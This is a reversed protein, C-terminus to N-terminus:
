IQTKNIQNLIQFWFIHSLSGGFLWVFFNTHRTNRSVTNSTGTNTKLDIKQHDTNSHERVWLYYNTGNQNKFKLVHRRQKSCVGSSNKHQFLLMKYSYNLKKQDWEVTLSQSAQPQTKRPHRGKLFFRMELYDIGIGITARQDFKTWPGNNKESLNIKSVLLEKM